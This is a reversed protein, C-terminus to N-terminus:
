AMAAARAAPRGADHALPRRAPCRRRMTCACSRRGLPAATAAEGDYWVQLEVRRNAGHRCAHRQEAVPKRIARASSRHFRRRRAWAARALVARGPVRTSRVVRPQRSLARADRASMRQADAHGIVLLRLNRRQWARQRRDRRTRKRSAPLLEDRGSEFLAGQDADSLTETRPPRSSDAADRRVQADGESRADASRVPRAPGDLPTNFETNAGATSTSPRQSRRDQRADADDAAVAHRREAPRPSRSRWCSRHVREHGCRRKTRSAAASVLSAAGGM